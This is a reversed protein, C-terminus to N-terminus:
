TAPWPWQLPPPLAMLKRNAKTRVLGIAGAPLQRWWGLTDYVGDGLVVLEQEGRGAAELERRVWKAAGLGVQWEPEQTVAESPDLPNM